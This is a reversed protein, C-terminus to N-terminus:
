ALNETKWVTPTHWFLQRCWSLEQSKFSWGRWFWEQSAVRCAELLSWPLQSSQLHYTRFFSATHHRGVGRRWKKLMLMSCPSFCCCKILTLSLLIVCFPRSKSLAFFFPHFPPFSPSPHLRYCWGSGKASPSLLLMTRRWLLLWLVPSEPSGSISRVCLMM